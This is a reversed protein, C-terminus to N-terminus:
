YCLITPGESVDNKKKLHSVTLLKEKGSKFTINNIVQKAQLIKAQPKPKNSKLIYINLVMVGAGLNELRVGPNAWFLCTYLYLTDNEMKFNKGIQYNM